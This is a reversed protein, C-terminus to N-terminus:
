FMNLGNTNCGCMSINSSVTSSVDRQCERCVSERRSKETDQDNTRGGGGNLCQSMLGARESRTVSQGV